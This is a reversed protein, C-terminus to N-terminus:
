WRESKIKEIPIGLKKLSNFITLVMEPPGCIYILTKAPNKIYQKILDPTIRGTLGQWNTGDPRTITNILNFNKYNKALENLEENYVIDDPTKSSFILTVDAKIKKDLIYKAIGRLPAVGTGAGVLVVDEDCDNYTFLGHATSIEVSDNEKLNLFRPSFYGKDYIRVTIQIFDKETPSSSISYPRKEIKDETPHPLGLMVFQGPIYSFNDNQFRYSYVDKTDQIIKILKLQM